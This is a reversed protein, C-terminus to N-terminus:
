GIKITPAFDGFISVVPYFNLVPITLRVEQSERGGPPCNGDDGCFEAKVGPLNIARDALEVM